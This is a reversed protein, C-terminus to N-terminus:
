KHGNNRTSPTRLTLLETCKRAGIITIERFVSLFPRLTVFFFPQLRRHRGEEQLRRIGSDKIFNIQATSVAATRAYNM